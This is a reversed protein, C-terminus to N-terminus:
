DAGLPIEEKEKKEQIEKWLKAAMPAWAKAYAQCSGCLTDVDEPSQLDTSRAGSRHVMAKLCDPNELMPCPRLHNANFPQGEAYEQFLPQRLCTLLDDRNINASSYHIFVCPEVDGAPNIHCYNRGGAICGGIFEGDNQFDIPFLAIPNDSSRIKRIRQVM